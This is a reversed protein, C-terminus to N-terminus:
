DPRHGFRTLRSRTPGLRLVLWTRKELRGDPDRVKLSDAAATDIDSVAQAEPITVARGHHSELVLHLLRERPRATLRVPPDLRVHSSVDDMTGRPVDNWRETSSSNGEIPNSGAANNM